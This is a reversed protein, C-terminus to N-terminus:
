KAKRPWMFTFHQEREKAMVTAVEKGEQSDGGMVFGENGGKLWRLAERGEEAGLSWRSVSRARGQAM